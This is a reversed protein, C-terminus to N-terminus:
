YTENIVKMAESITIYGKEYSRIAKRIKEAKKDAIIMPINTNNWICKMTYNAYEKMFRPIKNM